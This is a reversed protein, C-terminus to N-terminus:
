LSISSSPLWLYCGNFDILLSSDSFLLISGNSEQTLM